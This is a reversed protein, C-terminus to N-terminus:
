AKRQAVAGTSSGRGHGRRKDKLIPLLDARAPGKPAEGGKIAERLGEWVEYVTEKNSERGPLGKSCERQRRLPLRASVSFLVM